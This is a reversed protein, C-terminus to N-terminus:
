KEKFADRDKQAQDWWRLRATSYENAKKLDNDFLKAFEVFPKNTKIGSHCNTCAIGPIFNHLLNKCLSMIERFEDESLDKQYDTKCIPCHVSRLSMKERM